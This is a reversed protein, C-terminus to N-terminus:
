ANEHRVGFDRWSAEKEAAERERCTRCVPVVEIVAAAQIFRKIVSAEEKTFEVILGGCSKCYLRADKRKKV